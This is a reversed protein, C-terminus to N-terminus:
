VGYSKDFDDAGLALGESVLMNLLRNQALGRLDRGLNRSLMMNKVMAKTVEHRPFKALATTRAEYEREIPGQRSLPLSDLGGGAGIYSTLRTREIEEIINTLKALHNGLSLSQFINM